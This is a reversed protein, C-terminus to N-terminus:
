TSLVRLTRKSSCASQSVADHLAGQAILSACAIATMTSLGVNHM